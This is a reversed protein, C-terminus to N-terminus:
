RLGLDTKIKNVLGSGLEKGKGHMPLTSRKDGRTVHLHSGRGPAFTCGNRHLWRKFEQSTLRRSSYLTLTAIAVSINYERNPRPNVPAFARARAPRPTSHSFIEDTISSPAATVMALEATYGAAVIPSEYALHFWAELNERTEGPAGSPMAVFCHKAHAEDNTLSM